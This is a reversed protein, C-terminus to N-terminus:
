KLFTLKRSPATESRGSIVVGDSGESLNDLSRLPLFDFISLRFPLTRKVFDSLSTIDVEQYSISVVAEYQGDTDSSVEIESTEALNNTNLFNNATVTTDNQDDEEAEALYSLGNGFNDFSTLRSLSFVGGDGLPEEYIFEYTNANYDYIEIEADGFFDTRRATITDVNNAYQYSISVEDNIFGDNVYDEQILVKREKAATEYQTIKRDSYIIGGLSDYYYTVQTETLQDASYSFFTEELVNGDEDEIVERAPFSGERIGGVFETTKIRDYIEDGDYDERYVETEGIIDITERYDIINDGDEDIAQSAIYIGRSDSVWEVTAVYDENGDFDTDVGIRSPLYATETSAEDDSSGGGGGGCASLLAISVPLLFLHPLKM